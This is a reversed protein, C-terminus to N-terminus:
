EVTTSKYSCTTPKALFRCGVSPHKSGRSHNTDFPDCTDYVFGCGHFVCGHDSETHHREYFRLFLIFIGFYSVAPGDVM